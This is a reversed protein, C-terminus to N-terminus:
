VNRTSIEARFSIDSMNKMTGKAEAFEIDSGEVSKWNVTSLIAAM